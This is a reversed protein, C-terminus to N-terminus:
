QTKGCSKCKKTFFGGVQGGCHRCLGQKTWLREKDIPGIGRWVNTICESYAVDGAIIVMGDTKLGVVHHQGAFVAVVDRWNSTDGSCGHVVTGDSKLGVINYFASVAVIDRWANSFPNDRETSVVTGDSKIGVIHHRGVIVDVIDHWDGTNCMDGVVVVTGDAKLGVTFHASAAVSVIDRWADTNCQGQNNNGVAVVRGDTKLGVTHSMGIDVAVIDKWDGTNCEDWGNTGVAVVRGNAKLGVTHNDKASIAVINRWDGTNCQGQENNGVAVVRGNVKLGVTHYTGVSVAVIDHWDAIDCQGYYRECVQSVKSAQEGKQFAVLYRATNSRAQATDDKVAVVTGDPKLGVTHYEGVAICNSYQKIRKRCEPLKSKAENRRQRDQREEEAIREQITQNYGEIKVRYDATSFRLAKQYNPIADLPKAHNALDAEHGIGVEACLKGIYASAYEPNIDLVKDFYDDAEKWKSDELALNGRKMLSEINAANDVKVTGTVEVTGDIEVMMKKAEEVSYKSGCSQCVFAGDQKM